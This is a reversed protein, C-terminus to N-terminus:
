RVAIREIWVLECAGNGSDARTTSTHWYFGGPGNVNVLYGELRVIHGPKIRKLQQELQPTSPVMHMNASSVVIKGPDIPPNQPWAYYYFRDGQSIRLKDLVQSDSMHGWGLALDVPSIKAGADYRYLHKSLVRAEVVFHAVPTFTYGKAVFARPLNDSNQYPQTSVLVGSPRTIPRAQVTRVEWFVAGLLILGVWLLRM